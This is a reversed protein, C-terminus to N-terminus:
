RVGQEVTVVAAPSTSHAYGASAHATTAGFSIAAATLVTGFVAAPLYSKMATEEPQHHDIDGSHRGDPDVATWRGVGSLCSM